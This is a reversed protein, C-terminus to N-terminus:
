IELLVIQFISYLVFSEDILFIMSYNLYGANLGKLNNEYSPKADYGLGTLKIDGMSECLILLKLFQGTLVIFNSLWVLCKFM